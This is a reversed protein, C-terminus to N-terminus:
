THRDLQKPCNTSHRAPIWTWICRRRSKSSSQESTRPWRSPCSSCRWGLLGTIPAGLFYRSRSWIIIRFCTHSIYLSVNRTGRERHEVNHQMPNTPRCQASRGKGKRDVRARGVLHGWATTDSDSATKACTSTYGSVPHASCSADAFPRCFFIVCSINSFKSNKTKAFSLM